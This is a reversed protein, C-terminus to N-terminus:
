VSKLLTAILELNKRNGKAFTQDYDEIKEISNPNMIIRDILDLQALVRNKLQEAEFKIDKLEAAQKRLKAEQQHLANRTDSLANVEAVLECLSKFEAEPMWEQRGKSVFLELEIISWKSPAEIMRIFRHIRKKVEAAQKETLLDFRATKLVTLPDSGWMELTDSGTLYEIYNNQTLKYIKTAVLDPLNKLMTSQPELISVYDEAKMNVQFFNNTFQESISEQIQTWLETSLSEPKELKFLDVLKEKSTYRTVEKSFMSKLLQTAQNQLVRWHEESLLTPKSRNLLLYCHSQEIKSSYDSAELKRRIAESQIESWETSSVFWPKTNRFLKESDSWKSFSEREWRRIATISQSLMGVLFALWIWFYNITPTQNEQLQANGDAHSISIMSREIPFSDYRIQLLFKQGSPLEPYVLEFSNEGLFSKEQVESSHKTIKFTSIHRPIKISIDKLASHGTNVVTVEQAYEHKGPSGVIEIADSVSYTATPVDKFHNQALLLLVGGVVTLFLSKLM